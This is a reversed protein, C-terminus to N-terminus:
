TISWFKMNQDSLVQQGVLITIVNKLKESLKSWSSWWKECLTNIINLYSVLFTWNQNPTCNRRLMFDFSMNIICIQEVYTQTYRYKPFQFSLNKDRRFQTWYSVIHDSM